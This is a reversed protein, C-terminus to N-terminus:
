NKKVLSELINIFNDKRINIQNQNETQNKIDKIRIRKDTDKESLDYIVKLVLDDVSGSKDSDSMTDGEARDSM